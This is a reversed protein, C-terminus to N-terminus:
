KISRALQRLESPGGGGAIQIVQRQDDASLRTFDGGSERAKQRMWQEDATMPHPKDFRIRPGFFYFGLLVVFTLLGILSAIIATLGVQSREGGANKPAIM